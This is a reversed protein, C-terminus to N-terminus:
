LIWLLPIYPVILILSYLLGCIKSVVLVPLFGVEDGTDVTVTTGTEAVVEWREEMNEDTNEEIIVEYAEEDEMYYMPQPTIAATPPQFRVQM